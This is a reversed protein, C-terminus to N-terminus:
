ERDLAEPEYRRLIDVFEDETLPEVKQPSAANFGRMMNTFDAFRMDRLDQPSIHFQGCIQSVESFKFPEPADGDQDDDDDIEVGTMVASLIDQALVANEMYPSQEFHDTMLTKAQLVDLGGGILALRITHYPESAFFQGTAVRRFIEGFPKGGCAEELDM